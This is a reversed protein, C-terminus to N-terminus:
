RGKPAKKVQITTMVGATNFAMPVWRSAAAFQDLEDAIANCAQFFSRDQEMAERYCEDEATQIVPVPEDRRASEKFTVWNAFGNGVKELTSRMQDGRGTRLYIFALFHLSIIEGPIAQQLANATAEMLHLNGTSYCNALVTLLTAIM